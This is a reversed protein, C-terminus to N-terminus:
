KGVCIKYNVDIPKINVEKMCGFSDNALTWKNEIKNNNEINDYILENEILHKQINADLFSFGSEKRM